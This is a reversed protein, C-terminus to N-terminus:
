YSIRPATQTILFVVAGAATGAALLSHLLQKRMHNVPKTARGQKGLRHQAAQTEFGHIRDATLQGNFGHMFM